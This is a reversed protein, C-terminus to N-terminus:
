LCNTLCTIKDHFIGTKYRRKIGSTFSLNHHYSFIHCGVSSLHSQRCNLSRHEYDQPPPYWIGHLGSPLQAQLRLPYDPVVPPLSQLTLFISHGQNRHSSTIPWNSHNWSSAPFQFRGNLLLLFQMQNM